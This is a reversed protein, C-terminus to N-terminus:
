YYYLLWCYYIYLLTWMVINVLISQIQIGYLLNASCLVCAQLNPQYFFYYVNLPPAFM